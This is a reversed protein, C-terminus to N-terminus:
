VMPPTVPNYGKEREIGPEPHSQKGWSVNGVNSDWRLRVLESGICM